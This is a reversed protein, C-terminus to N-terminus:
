RVILSYFFQYEESLSDIERCGANQGTLPNGVEDGFTGENSFTGVFFYTGANYGVNENFPETTATSIDLKHNIAQCVERNINPSIMLLESAATGLDDINLQGTYSFDAAAASIVAAEPAPRWDMNGGDSHFVKCPDDSEPTQEYFALAVIGPHYFSIDDESCGDRRLRNVPREIQQAYALIDSAALVIQRNSLTNTTDSHFGRSMTISLAAFLVVGLIIFLFINGSEHPRRLTKNQPMLTKM